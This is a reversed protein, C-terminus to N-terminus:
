NDFEHEARAKGVKHMMMARITRVSFYLALLCLFVIFERTVLMLWAETQYAQIAMVEYAVAAITVVLANISMITMSHPNTLGALIVLLLVIGLTLLISPLTIAGSFPTTLILLVGIAVMIIRVADGHYHPIDSLKEAPMSYGQIDKEM